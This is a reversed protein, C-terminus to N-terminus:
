TRIVIDGFGELGTLQYGSYFRMQGSILSQDACIGFAVIHHLDTADLDIFRGAADIDVSLFFRERGLFKVKKGEQRFVRVMDKGLILQEPLDPIHFGDPIYGGNRYM